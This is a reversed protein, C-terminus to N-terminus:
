VHTTMRFTSTLSVNSAQPSLAPLLARRTERVSHTGPMPMTLTWPTMWKRTPASTAGTPYAPTMSCAAQRGLRTSAVNDVDLGDDSVVAWHQHRPNTTKEVLKM